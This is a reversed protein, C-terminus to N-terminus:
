QKVFDTVVHTSWTLKVPAGTADFEMAYTGDYTVTTGDFSYNATVTTAGGTFNGTIDSRTISIVGAASDIVVKYKRGTSHVGIYTDAEGEGPDVVVPAAGTITYTFEDGTATNAWPNMTVSAGAALTVVYNGNGDKNAGTGSVFCGTPCTITLVIDETATYIYYKEQESKLHTMDFPLSDVVIPFKASGYKAATITANGGSTKATVVLVDGEALELVQEVNAVLAIEEGGNLTYTVTVDGGVSPGLALKFKIAGAATYVFKIDSGSINNNGMVLDKSTIEPEEPEGTYVSLTLNDSSVLQNNEADYTFVYNNTAGWNNVTYFVVTEGDVFIFTIELTYEQGWETYTGTGTGDANVVFTYEIKAYGFDQVGTWTAELFSPDEPEFAEFAVTFPVNVAEEPFTNDAVRFYVTEGAQVFIKIENSMSDVNNNPTDIVTGYQVYFNAHESSIIVYGNETVTFQYCPFVYGGKYPSVYDGAEPVVYPAEDTGDGDLAPVEPEEEASDGMVIDLALIADLYEEAGTSMSNDYYELTLSYTGDENETATYTFYLDVTTYDPTYVNLVYIGEDKYFYLIYGDVVDDYEGAFSEKVEDYNIVINLAKMAELITADGQEDAHQVYTHNIKYTGDGNDTVTYTFFYSVTWDADKINVLYEGTAYDRNLTVYYDDVKYTGALMNKVPDISITWELAELEAAKDAGVEYSVPYHTLALTYTNDGNDTVEYTFYLEVSGTSSRVCTLYIGTNFDRYLSINYEGVVYDGALADKQADDPAMVIEEAKEFSVTLVVTGATQDESNVPLIVTEGAVVPIEIVEGALWPMYSYEVVANTGVTVHFKGDETAVLIAQTMLNADGTVEVNNEGEVLEVEPAAEPEEGEAYLVYDTGNYVAATPVGDTLTVNAAFMNLADGNEDFLSMVGDEITYTASTTSEGMYPHSYTFVVTGDENFVVTLLKDAGYYGYYTGSITEAPEESGGQATLSYTYGNYAFTAPKGNALTLEGALSNTIVGNDNSLEVADGVFRFTFNVVTEAGSNGTFKFSMTGAAQDITLVGTKQGAIGDYVGSIDASESSSAEFSAKVSSYGGITIAIVKVTDGAAVSIEKKAGLAVSEPEGGNVVLYFYVDSNISYGFELVLKGAAEATYVLAINEEEINNNGNNNEVNLDAEEIDDPILDALSPIEVEIHWVVNKTDAAVNVTIEEGEELEVTVTTGNANDVFDVLPSSDGDVWFGLGAPVTFKYEGAIAATYTFSDADYTYTDTTAVYVNEEDSDPIELEKEGTIVLTFSKTVQGFTFTITYSGPDFTNFAITDSYGSFTPTKYFGEVDWPAANNGADNNVFSYKFDNEDMFSPIATSPVLSGIHLFVRIGTPVTLTGEILEESLIELNGENNYETVYYLEFDKPVFADKPYITTYTREGSTQSVEYYYISPNATDRLTVTNTEPDYDLDMDAEYNRYVAVAFEAFDIVFNEDVTYEVMVNYLEVQYNKTKEGTEQNTEDTENVMYVTYAFTYVGKEADYSSTAESVNPASVMVDYLAFITHALTTTDEYGAALISGPTYNYGNLKKPDGSTPALVIGGDSVIGFIEGNELTEFYQKEAGLYNGDKDYSQWDLFSDGNGLVFYVKNIKGTEVVFSGASGGFVMESAIVNGTTVKYNNALAAKLVALFDTRDITKIQANCVTCYGADNISCAEKDAVEVKHECLAAHWHYGDGYTWESSYYHEHLDEIVYKCVDCEGDGDNDAHAAVDAGAITCGCAPAHWHNTCDVTWEEEDAYFHEHGDIVYKCVDCAYDNNSDTHNLIRVEVDDCDCTQAYWRGRDDKSWEEDTKFTHTHGETGGSTNGGDTNGGDTNGGDTNGGDTNGGDTNGSDQTGSDTTGSDQTGSDVPDEVNGCALLMGLSLALCLLIALVRKM